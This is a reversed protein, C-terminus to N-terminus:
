LRGPTYVMASTFPQLVVQQDLTPKDDVWRLPQFLYAVNGEGVTFDCGNLAERVAVGRLNDIRGIQDPSGSKQVLM